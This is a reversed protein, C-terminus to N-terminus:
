VALVGVETGRKSITIIRNLQKDPRRTSVHIWTGYEHILQGIELEGVLPALACAVQHPTGFAPAKFDAALARVHDSGPTSGIAANLAPCRYGSTLWIPVPRGALASLRERIRELLLATSTAAILLSAPLSNDLGLREATASATFEAASFHPSLNMAHM